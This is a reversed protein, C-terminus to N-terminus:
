LLIANSSVNAEFWFATARTSQGYVFPAPGIAVDYQLGHRQAASTQVAKTGVDVDESVGPPPPAALGIPFVWM